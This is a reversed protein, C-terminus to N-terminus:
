ISIYPTTLFKQEIAAKCSANARDRANSPNNSSLFVFNMLDAVANFCTMNELEELLYLSTCPSKLHM